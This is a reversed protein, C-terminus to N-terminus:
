VLAPLSVNRRRRRIIIVVAVISRIISDMGTKVIRLNNTTRLKM